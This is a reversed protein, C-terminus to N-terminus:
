HAASETNVDHSLDQKLQRGISGCCEMLSALFLAKGDNLSKSEQEKEHHQPDFQTDQALCPEVM